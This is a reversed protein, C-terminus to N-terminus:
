PLSFRIIPAVSPNLDMALGRDAAWRAVAASALIMMEAVLMQADPAHYDAGVEVQIGAGEGQLHIVPDPRDMIVAGDAIRASQRKRALQLGLRM